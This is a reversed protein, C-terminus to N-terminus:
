RSVPVSPSDIEELPADRLQQVLIETAASEVIFLKPASGGGKPSNAAGVANAMPHWEPFGHDARRLLMEAVRMYGARRDNQGPCSTLGTSM